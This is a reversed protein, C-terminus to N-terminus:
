NGLGDTTGRRMGWSMACNPGHRWTNRTEFGPWGGGRRSRPCVKRWTRCHGRLLHHLESDLGSVCHSNYPVVSPVVAGLGDDFGKVVDHNVDFDDESEFDLTRLPRSPELGEEPVKMGARCLNNAPLARLESGSPAQQTEQGARGQGVDASKLASRHLDICISALQIAGINAGDIDGSNAGNEPGFRRKGLWWRTLMKYKSFSPQRGQENTEDTQAALVDRPSM